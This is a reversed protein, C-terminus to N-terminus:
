LSLQAQLSRRTPAVPSLPHRFDLCFTNESLKAHQFILMESADDACLMFNMVSSQVKRDKFNLVLSKLEEDWLPMKTYVQLPEDACDHEEEILFGEGERGSAIPRSRSGPTSCSGRSPSRDALDRGLVVPCWVM